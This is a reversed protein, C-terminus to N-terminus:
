KMSNYLHDHIKKMRDIDVKEVCRDYTILGNTETEVDSLQTYIAGALGEIHELIEVYKEYVDEVTDSKVYGWSRTVWSHGEVKKGIGGFEGVVRIREDVVRMKPAPYAHCDCIDGVNKFHNGGSAANVLRQSDQSLECIESTDFQGWNENFPVWCMVSPSMRVSRRIESWEELFLAKTEPPVTKDKEKFGDQDWGLFQGIGWGCRSPMDQWVLIGMQDCHYYWRLPEVKAHKRLTNFGLKQCFLLDSKLAEDTPATYLGDPWYGQDLLGYVFIPENNLLFCPFGHHTGKSFKRMAFYSFVVDGTASTIKTNYLKPSSPSWRVLNEPVKFAVGMAVSEVTLIPTTEDFIELKFNTTTNRDSSEGTLTLTNKDIDPIFELYDVYVEPVPEMWVTQWIGTVPTYWITYPTQIQKGRPQDSCDTPDWVRLIIEITKNEQITESPIEVEFPSYGGKHTFVEQKNLFITCEYDVAGFHLLTKNSWPMEVIKRYWLYEKESVRRQVGSLLSEIPFPVTIHGEIKTPITQQNKPTVVYEWDGNLNMWEERRLQPRPYEPLPHERDLKKSYETIM